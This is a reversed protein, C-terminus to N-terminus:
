VLNVLPHTLFAMGHGSFEAAHKIILASFPLLGEKDKKLLCWEGMM